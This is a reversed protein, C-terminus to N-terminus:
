QDLLFILSHSCYKSINQCRDNQSVFSFYLRNDKQELGHLLEGNQVRPLSWPPCFVSYGKMRGEVAM